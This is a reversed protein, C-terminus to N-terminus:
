VLGYNGLNISANRDRDIEIGCKECKYTRDKLGLDSKINGCC